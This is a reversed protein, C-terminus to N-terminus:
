AALKFLDALWHYAKPYYDADLVFEQGIDVTRLLCGKVDTRWRRRDGHHTLPPKNPSPYIWAPVRWIRRGEGPETLQLKPHYKRFVGGGALHTRLGPLGLRKKAVYLTDNFEEEEARWEDGEYVHPHNQAWVPLKLWNSVEHYVKDVQLWGWLMHIDPARRVYRWREGVQEVQRFWGFFLFIDGVGVGSNSLHSQAPGGPGYAPLWGRRRIIAEKRLDPDLHGHSNSAYRKARKRTLDAVVRGLSGQGFRIERFHPNWGEPDDIPIPISCISSDPFIPSAVGGNKKDFGKRSLIIKM